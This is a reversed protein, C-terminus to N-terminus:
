PKWARIREAYAVVAPRNKEFYGLLVILCIGTVIGFAWWPWVQGISRHAHAVMGVLALFTFTVGCYLFSQIRLAIGAGAGCLALTLLVLAQWLSGGIATLFVESSSSLYAVLLAIYRIATVTQPNLKQQNWQTLILTVIAPPLLWFQPHQEFALLSNGHLLSWYSSLLLVCGLSRLPFSSLRISHGLYIVGAAFLLGAFVSAENWLVIADPQTTWWVGVLPLVPLLLSSNAVPDALVNQERQQLWSGLGASIIAVVFTVVPWWDVFVGSFVDPFHFYAAAATGAISVEAGYVFWQRQQLSLAEERGIPWVALQLLRGTLAVWAVVSSLAVGISAGRAVQAWDGTFQLCLVWAGLGIAALFALWSGHQLAVSWQNTIGLTRVLSIYAVSIFVAAAFMRQVYIWSEGAQIAPWASPLDAWWVLALTVSSLLVTIHRFVIDRRLSALPLISAMGLLPLATAMLRLSRDPLAMVLVITPFLSLLGVSSHVSPMWSLARTLSLESVSRHLKLAHLLQPQRFLERLGMALCCLASMVAAMWLLLAEMRPLEVASAVLLAGVSFLSITNLYISGGRLSANSWLLTLSLASSAAVLGVAVPLWALSWAAPGSLVTLIFSAVISVIAVLVTAIVEVPAAGPSAFEQGSNIETNESERPVRLSEPAAWQRAAQAAFSIWGAAIPGWLVCWAWAIVGANSPPGILSRLAPVVALTLLLASIYGPLRKGTVGSAIAQKTAVAGLLLSPWWTVPDVYLGAVGLSVVLLGLAQLSSQTVDNAGPHAQDNPSRRSALGGLCYAILWGASLIHVPWFSVTGISRYLGNLSTLSEAHHVAISRACFGAALPSLLVCGLIAFKGAWNRKWHCASFLVWVLLTSLVGLSGGLINLGPISLIPFIIAGLANAISFGTVVVM